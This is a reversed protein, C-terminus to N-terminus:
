GLYYRKINDIAVPKLGTKEANLAADIDIRKLDEKRTALNCLLGIVTVLNKYAKLQKGNGKWHNLGRLLMAEAFAEHKHTKFFLNIIDFKVKFDDQDVTNVTQLILSLLSQAGVAYETPKLEHKHKNNYNKLQAVLVQYPVAGNKYIM